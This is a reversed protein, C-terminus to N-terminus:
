RSEYAPLDETRGAFAAVPLAQWVVRSPAPGIWRFPYCTVLTVQEEDTPALVGVESPSVVRRSALRYEREGNEGSLLVSDGVKVDALRRFFSDRHATIVCNSGATPLATGPVHGPGKRLVDASVGEFVALDLGVRPIRLRGVVDGPAPEPAPAPGPAEPAASWARLPLEPLESRNGEAARRPAESTTRYSARALSQAVVGEIWQAAAVALLFGGSLAALLGIWARRRGGASALSRRCSACLM